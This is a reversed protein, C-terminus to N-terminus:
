DCPDCKKTFYCVPVWSVENESVARDLLCSIEFQFRFLKIPGKDKLSTDLSHDSLLQFNETGFNMQIESPSIDFYENVENNNIQGFLTDALDIDCCLDNEIATQAM